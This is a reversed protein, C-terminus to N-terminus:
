FRARSMSLYHAADRALITRPSRRAKKPRGPLDAVMEAITKM